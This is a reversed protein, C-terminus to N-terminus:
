PFIIVRKLQDFLISRTKLVLNGLYNDKKDLFEDEDNFNPSEDNEDENLCIIRDSDM